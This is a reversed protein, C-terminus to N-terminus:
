QSLIALRFINAQEQDREIDFYKRWLDPLACYRFVIRYRLDLISVEERRQKRRRRICFLKLRRYISTRKSKRTPQMHKM